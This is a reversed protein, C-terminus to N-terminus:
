IVKRRRAVFAVAGLGALMLAYTEPEPIPALYLTAHSLDQPMGRGNVSVGNTIYDISTVGSAGSYYYLSFSNSAKLAIAFPSDVPPAFTLTGATGGPGSLDPTQELWGSIGSLSALEAYVDADQNKNNGDWSGSCATANITTDTLSCLAGSDGPTLAAQSPAAILALTALALANLSHQLKMDKSRDTDLHHHSGAIGVSGLVAPAKL